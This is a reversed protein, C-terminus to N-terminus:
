ILTGVAHKILEICMKDVDVDKEAALLVAQPYCIIIDINPETSEPEGSPSNTYDFTLVPFASKVGKYKTSLEYMKRKGVFAVSFIYSDPILKKKLYAQIEETIKKKNVKYRTNTSIIIM